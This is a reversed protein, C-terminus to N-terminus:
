ISQGNKLEEKIRINMLKKVGNEMATVVFGSPRVYDGDYLVNINVSVTGGADLISAWRNEMIKYGSLNLHALQSVLNDLQNSGGFRDAILHGAHDGTEKGPTNRANM